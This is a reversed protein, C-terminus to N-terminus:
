IDLINKIILLKNYIKKSSEFRINEKNTDNIIYNITLNILRMYNEFDCEVMYALAERFYSGNEKIENVVEERIQEKLSNMTDDDLIVQGKLKMINEEENLFHNILM